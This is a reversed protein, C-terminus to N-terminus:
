QDGIAAAFLRVQWDVFRDVGPRLPTPSSAPPPGAALWVAVSAEFVGEFAVAALRPSVWKYLNGATLEAAITTHVAAMRTLANNLTQYPAKNLNVLDLAADEVTKRIPEYATLDAVIRNKLLTTLASM